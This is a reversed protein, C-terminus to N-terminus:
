VCGGGGGGGGGAALGLSPASSSSVPRGPASVSSLLSGCISDEAAAERRRLVRREELAVAVEVPPVTVRWYVARRAATAAAVAAVVVAVCRLRLFRSAEESESSSKRGTLEAVVGRALKEFRPRAPRVRTSNQESHLHLNVTPASLASLASFSFRTHGAHALPPPSDFFFTCLFLLPFPSLIAPSSPNIGTGLKCSTHM